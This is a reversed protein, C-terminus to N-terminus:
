IKSLGSLSSDFVINQAFDTKYQEYQEVLRLVAERDEGERAGRFRVTKGGTLFHM